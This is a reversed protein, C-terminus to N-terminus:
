RAVSLAADASGSDEKPRLVDGAGQLECRGVVNDPGISRGCAPCGPKTRAFLGDTGDYAGTQTLNRRWTRYRPGQFDSVDLTEILAGRHGCPCEVYTFIRTKM